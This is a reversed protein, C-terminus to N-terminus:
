SMWEVSIAHGPLAGLFGRCVGETRIARGAHIGEKAVGRKEQYLLPLSHLQGSLSVNWLYSDPWCCTLVGIALRSRRREFSGRSSAVRSDISPDTERNAKAPLRGVKGSSQCSDPPSLPM